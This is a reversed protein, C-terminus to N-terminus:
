GRLLGMIILIRGVTKTGRRTLGLAFSQRAFGILIEVLSLLMGLNMFVIGRFHHIEGTGDMLERRRKHRIVTMLRALLLSFAVAEFVALLALSFKNFFSWLLRRSEDVFGVTNVGDLNGSPLIIIM